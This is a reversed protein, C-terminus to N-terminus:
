MQKPVEIKKGKLQTKIYFLCIKTSPFIDAYVSPLRVGLLVGKNIIGEKNRDIGDLERLLGITNEHHFPM